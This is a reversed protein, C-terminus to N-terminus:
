GLVEPPRSEEGDAPIVVREGVALGDLVQANIKDTLGIRILRERTRGSASMVRVRYRGPAVRDNLVSWPVLPVRRAIGVQITVAATMMPRLRGDPNPTTFLGSFYVAQSTTQGAAAATAPDNAITAPAPELKELVAGVPRDPQGMITFRVPLGPRVRGIDAESVQVKVRMRDLQALVVITPVSQVTNLTQGAKTVVAVVTGDMPARVRTYGLNTRANDEEAVARAIQADLSGIEASLADRNAEAAELEATTTANAQDLNRQRRYSLEAQRLQVNRSRRQADLALRSAQAMRLANVQPTSDIEAILQGARVTQGLEVHLAKIQGSVQAGVNVQRVAELVGNALVAEEVTGLTVAQTLPPPVRRSDSFAWAGLAAGIVLVATVGWVYRRPWRNIWPLIQM